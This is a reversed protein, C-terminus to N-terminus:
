GARPNCKSLIAERHTQKAQEKKCIENLHLNYHKVMNQQSYTEVGM